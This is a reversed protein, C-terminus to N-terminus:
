QDPDQINVDDSLTYRLIRKNGTDGIYLVDDYEAISTASKLLNNQYQLILTDKITSTTDYIVTYTTDTGNIIQTTDIPTFTYNTDPQIIWTNTVGVFKDFAGTSTFKKVLNETSDLVFISADYDIAVDVPAQFQDLQMIEHNDKNFVCNYSNSQLKHTGFYNGLQTYYINGDNDAVMGTPNNITGGGTGKEAVFEDLVGEYTWIKQNTSLLIMQSKVLAIRVLKNNTRDMVFIATDEATGPALAIFKKTENAYNPNVEINKQSNPNYFIYPATISDLLTSTTNVFESNEIASYNELKLSAKPTAIITDTGNTYKMSDIVGSIGTESVFQNWAFILDNQGDIFYVIFRSDVCVATPSINLTDINIDELATYDNETALKGSQRIVTIKKNVSDAIFFRGDKAVFIDSIYDIGIDSFDWRPLIEVYLQESTLGTQTDPSTPLSM